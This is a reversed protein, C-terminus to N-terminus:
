KGEKPHVIGKGRVWDFCCLDGMDTIMVRNVIGLKVAVSTTYHKAAEVAEKAPVARRVYESTGNEFFQVVNFKEEVADM